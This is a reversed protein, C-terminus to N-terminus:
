WTYTLSCQLQHRNDKVSVASCENKLVEMQDFENYYKASLPENSNEPGRHMYPYFDGKRMTYQYALDLRLKDFTFGVGATLRNTAKWNTYDTSSAMYTGPSEITQDRVGNEKYMPSVYNYGARLAVQPSVKFEAGVKVTSVGRLTNQTLRKMERDSSSQEHYYGDWDYGRGTITRMDNTTYDVFEYSAGLALFNGITHGVSLGFKWPTYFRFDADYGIQDVDGIRTTNRTTLKYWTPTSVSVGFRFPSEEIPRFIAGAKIDFGQGKITHDDSILVSTLNPMSLSNLHEFYESYASYHVDKIGVTLGLYVMNNINGSINFDYEGIYGTHARIFDYDTADITTISGDPEDILNFYLADVQSTGWYTDLDGRIGKICTQRNQSSGNIAQAAASLIQNFNRSKHYNIGFNMYSHIGARSTFVIGLQDFSASTKSGDQFTKGEEQILMGLTGSIQNKRFLGIGAPNTGITSIDAGLSEMAGGMGVYRATGNLDETALQAGIYTDLNINDQAMVQGVMVAMAAFLVSKKM